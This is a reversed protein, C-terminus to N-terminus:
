DKDYNRLNCSHRTVLIFEWSCGFGHPWGKLGFRFLTPRNHSDKLSQKMWAKKNLIYTFPYFLIYIGEVKETVQGINETELKKSRTPCARADLKQLIAALLFWDCRYHSPSFLYLRM